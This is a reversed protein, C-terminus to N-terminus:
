RDVVKIGENDASLILVESDRMPRQMARAVEGPNKLTICTVAPGSGCLWGGIAGAKEGAKIIRSLQPILQERYPQHVRDELLGQLAEYNGVAFAASILASRNLNHLTDARSFTPPVLLRAKLTSFALNRLYLRPANFVLQYWPDRRFFRLLDMLPVSTEFSDIEHALEM